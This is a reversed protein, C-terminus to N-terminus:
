KPSVESVPALFKLLVELRSTLERTRLYLKNKDEIRATMDLIAKSAVNEPGPRETISDVDGEEKTLKARICGATTPISSELHVYVAGVSTQPAKMSSGILDLHIVLSASKTLIWAVLELKCVKM